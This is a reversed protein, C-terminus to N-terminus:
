YFNPIKETIELSEKIKRKCYFKVYNEFISNKLHACVDVYQVNIKKIIKSLIYDAIFM